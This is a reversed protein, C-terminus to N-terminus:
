TIWWLIPLIVSPTGCNLISLGKHIADATESQIIFSGMIQYDVNTKEVHFILPLSNRTTKYTTDLMSLENRYQQLLRRRARPTRFSGKQPHRSWRRTSKNVTLSGRRKVTLQMHIFNLIKTPCDRRGFSWKTKCIKRIM